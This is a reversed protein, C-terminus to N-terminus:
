VQPTIRDFARDPLDPQNDAQRRARDEDLREAEAVDSMDGIEAPADTLAPRDERPEAPEPRGDGDIRASM